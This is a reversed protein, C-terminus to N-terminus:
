RKALRQLARNYTECCEHAFNSLTIHDEELMLLAEAAAAAGANFLDGVSAELVAANSDTAALNNEIAEVDLALRAKLEAINNNVDNVDAQIGRRM